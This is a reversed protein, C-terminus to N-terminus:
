TRKVRPGFSLQFIPIQCDDSGPSPCPASHSIGLIPECFQCSKACLDQLRKNFPGWVEIVCTAHLHEVLEAHILTKICIDRKDRWVESMWKEKERQWPRTQRQALKEDKKHSPWVLAPFLLQCDDLHPLLFPCFHSTIFPDALISEIICVIGPPAKHFSRRNRHCITCFHEVLEM